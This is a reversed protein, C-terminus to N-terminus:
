HKEQYLLVWKRPLKVIMWKGLDEGIQPCKKHLECTWVADNLTLRSLKQEVTRVEFSNGQIEARKNETLVAEIAPTQIENMERHLFRYPVDSVEVINWFEGIPEEFMQLEGERNGERIDAINRIRTELNDKLKQIFQANDKLHVKDELVFQASVRTKLAQELATTRAFFEDIYQPLDVKFFDHILTSNKHKFSFTGNQEKKVDFQHLNDAFEQLDFRNSFILNSKFKKEVAIFFNRLRNRIRQWNDDLIGLLRVAEEGVRHSEFTNTHQSSKVVFERNACLNHKKLACDECALRDRKNDCTPDYCIITKVAHNCTRNVIETRPVSNAQTILDKLCNEQAAMLDHFSIMCNPDTAGPRQTTRSIITQLLKWCDTANNQCEVHDCQFLKDM